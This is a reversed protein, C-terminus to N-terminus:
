CLSGDKELLIIARPLWTCKCRLTIASWFHFPLHVRGRSSSIKVYSRTSPKEAYTYCIEEGRVGAELDNVKGAGCNPRRQSGV